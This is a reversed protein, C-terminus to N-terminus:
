SQLRQRTGSHPIKNRFMRLETDALHAPDGAQACDRVTNPFGAGAEQFEREDEQFEQEAEQEDPISRTRADPRAGQTPRPGLPTSCSCLFDRSRRCLSGQPLEATPPQQQAAERRSHGREDWGRAGVQVTQFGSCGLLEKSKCANM